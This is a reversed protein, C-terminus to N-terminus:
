WIVEASMPAIETGQVNIPEETYNIVIKATQEGSLYTNIIVGDAAVERKQWEYGAVQGLVSNIQEYISCILTRYQDFETSYLDSSVTDALYYSPEKSLIFSPSLNYDIMRLVDKTTYFSFNAYPAYLEMTGHLVMQLFPVSDTEFVYQSGSVPAKLYRDTYKWLYQNPAELNLKIKEGARELAGQYFAVAEQLTSVSGDSDFSSTLLNSIGTVTLSDSYDEVGEAIKKVWDAAKKPLAYGFTNVPVNTPLLAEQNSVLYWTNVHSAATNYFSLMERNITIFDRSFSVDIGLESMEQFLSKFESKSGIKGSFSLKYPKSLTEGNKQWGILGSNINHIGDERVKKLIEATDKATTVVVQETGMIGKKSDAMIFDLRIPIAKSQESYKETLVGTEILHERYVKAMGTYDAAPSGDSGDGFIFSYTMSIDFQNPQEMLTFYGEGKKNYVQFYTNNYEFRPYAWTYKIRKNEEPRVIIDMYEAGSDAYAVFAAQKNGHAIGFVPMVPDKLPVADTMSTNYYIETAPDKGYVDGIYETFSVNNDHFRILSGSGDPVLVYGPIMDKPVAEDYDKTEPDYLQHEGGSAGLFPSILVAALVNKGEGTIEDYKIDYQISNELFTIYVKISLDLETFDVDLRRTSPNDNLTYLTSNVGESAASSINKITEKEYYEVTVLSNAIGIYTKNLGSEKPVAAKEREEDTVAADIAATIENAYPVDIGTKWTYGSKKDEIAIVDRDERYYYRCTDTEYLLEYEDFSKLDYSVKDPAPKTDRNTPIYARVLLAGSLVTGLLGGALWVLKRKSSKKTFFM